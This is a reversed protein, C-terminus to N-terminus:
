FMLFFASLWMNVEFKEYYMLLIKTVIEDLIKLILKFKMIVIFFLCHNYRPIVRIIGHLKANMKILAHYNSFMFTKSDLLSQASQKFIAIVCQVVCQVIEKV